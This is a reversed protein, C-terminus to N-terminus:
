LCSFYLYFYISLTYQFSRFHCTKSTSIYHPYLPSLPFPIGHDDHCELTKKAMNLHEPGLGVGLDMHMRDQLGQRQLEDQVVPDDCSCGRISCLLSSQCEHHKWTSSDSSEHVQKLSKLHPQRVKQSRLIQERENGWQIAM